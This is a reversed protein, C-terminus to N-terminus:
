RHIVKNQELLVMLPGSTLASHVLRPVIGRKVLGTKFVHQILAALNKQQPALNRKVVGTKFMHSYLRSLHEPHPPKAQRLVAAVYFPSSAVVQIIGVGFGITFTHHPYQKHLPEYLGWYFASSFGRHLLAPSLGKTLLAPGEKRVVSWGDGQIFRTVLVNSVNKVSAEISSTFLGFLAGRVAPPLDTPTIYSAVWTSGLQLYSSSFYKIANPQFGRGLELFPTTRLVTVTTKKELIERKTIGDLPVGIALRWATFGTFQYFLTGADIM